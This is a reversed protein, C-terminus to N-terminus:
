WAGFYQNGFGSDIYQGMQYVPRWIVAGSLLGVNCGSAGVNQVPIGGQRTNFPYGWFVPGRSGHPARTWGLMPSWEDLDATLALDAPDTLRLPSIWGPYGAVKGWPTDTHGGFYFYGISYGIGATYLGNNTGWLGPVSMNPCVFFRSNATAYYVMSTYMQSPIFSAAQDGNDRIGSPLIDRNDTAYMHLTLYFQRLNNKCSVRRAKENAASLTPLLIAALIGIIAIVM